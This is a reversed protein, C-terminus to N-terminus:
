SEVRLKDFPIFTVGMGAEIDAGVVMALAVLADRASGGFYHLLGNGSGTTLYEHGILFYAIGAEGFATASSEFFELIAPFVHLM